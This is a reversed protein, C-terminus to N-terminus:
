NLYINIVMNTVYPNNHCFVQSFFTPFFLNIRAGPKHAKLEQNSAIVREYVSAATCSPLSSCTPLLSEVKHPGPLMFYPFWQSDPIVELTMSRLVEKVKAEDKLIRVTDLVPVLLYPGANLM